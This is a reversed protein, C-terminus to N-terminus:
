QNLINSVIRVSETTGDKTIVETEAVDTEVM